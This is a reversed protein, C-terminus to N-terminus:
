LDACVNIFVYTAIFVCMAIFIYGVDCMCVQDATWRKEPDLQLLGKIFHAFCVRKNREKEIAEDNWTSKYPYNAIIEEVTSYVNFYICVYM